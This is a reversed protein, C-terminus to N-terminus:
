KQLETWIKTYIAQTDPDCLKVFEGHSKLDDPIKVEPADRMDAPM